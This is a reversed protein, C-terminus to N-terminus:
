YAQAFLVQTKTEKGTIIDRDAHDPQDFPICRVTAKTQEKIRAETAKDPDFYARVFGGQEDLIKQMQELSDASRTNQDRYSRARNLMETHVQALRDRLWQPSEIENLNVTAKERDLRRKMVFANAQVDRPGVEMRFPVGRQEWHYQKDGPRADRWDVVIKQNTLKDFFYSRIQDSAAAGASASVGGFARSSNISLGAM